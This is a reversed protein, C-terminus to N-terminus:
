FPRKKKVPTNLEKYDYHEKIWEYVLIIFVVTNIVPLTSLLIISIINMIILIVTKPKATPLGIRFAFIFLCGILSIFYIYDVISM